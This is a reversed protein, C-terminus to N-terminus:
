QIRNFVGCEKYFRVYTRATLATVTDKIDQATNICEARKELYFDLSLHRENAPAGVWRGVIEAAEGKTM